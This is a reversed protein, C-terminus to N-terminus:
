SRSEKAAALLAADEEATRLGQLWEEVAAGVGREGFRAKAWALLEPPLTTTFKERAEPPAANKPRRGM